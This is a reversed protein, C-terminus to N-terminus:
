DGGLAQYDSLNHLNGLLVEGNHCLWAHAKFRDGERAVGIHFTSIYGYKALLYHGAIAQVLCTAKPVFRTAARLSSVISELGRQPSATVPRRFLRKVVRYPLLWLALRVCWLLLLAEFRLKRQQVTLRPRAVQSLGLM